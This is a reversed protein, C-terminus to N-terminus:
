WNNLAILQFWRIPNPIQTYRRKASPIKVECTKLSNNLAYLNLIITGEHYILGKIITVHEEKDRTISIKKFNEKTNIPSCWSKKWNTNLKYVKKVRFWETKRYLFQKKYHTYVQKIKLNM